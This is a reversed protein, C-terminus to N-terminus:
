LTETVFEKVLGFGGYSTKPVNSEVPLQLLRIWEWVKDFSLGTRRCISACTKDGGAFSTAVAHAERLISVFDTM